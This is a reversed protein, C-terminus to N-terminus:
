LSGFVEYELADDNKYNVAGLQFFTADIMIKTRGQDEDYLVFFRNNDIDNIIVYKQM